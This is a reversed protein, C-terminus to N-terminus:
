VEPEIYKYGLPILKLFGLLHIAATACPLTTNYLLLLLGSCAIEPLLTEYSDSQRVQLPTYHIEVSSGRHSTLPKKSRADRRRVPTALLWSVASQVMTGYCTELKNELSDESAERTVLLQSAECRPVSCLLCPISLRVILARGVARFFFCREM